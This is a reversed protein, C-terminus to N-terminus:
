RAAPTLEALLEEKLRHEHATTLKAGDASLYFVDIAMQGETDILAVEINCNQHAIRSAIRHLLGPQDQAVVQLLTTHTSCQDDFDIRTDIKVKAPKQRASKMRQELMRGLNAHGTLVDEVSRQFRDWEPLNLELTRFPDTFYLTDVIVGSQNSFANAKVINMGWAALAGSLNAFIMPRDRTVLTLDFWHRGRKLDLQVPQSEIRAAMEVHKVIEEGPYTRLYRQPLGELFPKLRRGLAPTISRLRAVTEDDGHVRQEDVSRNMQNIAAIYLQWINDAKWPTLADPHVARIDAYTLLCLMKLREPTGVKQAFAGVTAADFIDRRLTASVELHLAILFLVTERDQPPLDLRALCSEALQLSGRVHDQEPIGKGVDHLLLALFLLEPQELENFLEAFRREWESAGSQLRHLGDIAIFSHEDVTFRHYFDRVVLADFAQLEPLLVTLVGMQHMARLADAAHPEYLIECLRNWLAPGQPPTAAFSPLVQEVSRESATSLKLGHHAVFQFLRLLVDPDEVSKAQQLYVLGNVVSFDANSVRSRWTQLQRYLSSRAAPIEDLLQTAIRYVSRAHRFYIRMWDTANGADSERAGIKLLAAADQAEWTLTNDDRNHRYHLFARVDSLFQMADHFSQRLGPAVVLEPEPRMGLKDIASIMGLWSVVNADRLCGPSDKVNPELHFVTNGAKGHRDRTVEALQQVLQQYERMVLKPVLRYQLRNFLDRDGALFRADLLSITFEVNEASVRDCEALSRTFPSLKVPLDWLQQSFQRIRDKWEDEAVGNEHLFLVDVDSCPFLQSRGYGGLAVLCFPIAANSPAILDDWLRRCIGDVLATRGALTKRADHEREFEARIRASEGAYWDRLPSDLSLATSM